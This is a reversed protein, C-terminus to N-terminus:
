CPLAVNQDSSLTYPLNIKKDVSAAVQPTRYLFSNKFIKCFKCSFVQALIEKKIFNCAETELELVMLRMVPLAESLLCLSWRSVFSARCCCCVLLSIFSSFSSSPFTNIKSFWNAIKSVTM